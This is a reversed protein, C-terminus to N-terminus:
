IEKLNRGHGLARSYVGHKECLEKYHNKSRVETPTGDFDESTFPHFWDKNLLSMLIKSKGGCGPCRITEREDIKSFSEFEKKCSLCKLEYLPM